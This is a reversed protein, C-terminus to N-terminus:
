LKLRERIIPKAQASWISAQHMVLTRGDATTITFEFVKETNGGILLWDLSQDGAKRPSSSGKWYGNADLVPTMDSVILVPYPGTVDHVSVKKPAVKTKSTFGFAYTLSAEKSDVMFGTVEIKVDANETPLAGGPAVPLQVVRGGSITYSRLKGGSSACGTLALACVLSLLIKM